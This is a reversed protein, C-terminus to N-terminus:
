CSLHDPDVRELVTRHEQHSARDVVRAYGECFARIVRIEVELCLRPVQKDVLDALEFFVDRLERIGTELQVIDVYRTDMEELTQKEVVIQSSRRLQRDFDRRWM